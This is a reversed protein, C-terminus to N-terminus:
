MLDVLDDRTKTIKGDAEVELEYGGSVNPMKKISKVVGVGKFKASIPANSKSTVKSGVKIKIKSECLALISEALKM